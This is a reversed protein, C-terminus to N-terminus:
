TYTDETSIYTGTMTYVHVRIDGDQPIYEPPGHALFEEIAETMPGRQLRWSDVLRQV